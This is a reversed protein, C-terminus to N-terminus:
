SDLAAAKRDGGCLLEASDKRLQLTPEILGLQCPNPCDELCGAGNSTALRWTQCPVQWTPGSIVFQRKRGLCDRTTAPSFSMVVIYLTLQM